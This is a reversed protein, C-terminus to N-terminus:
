VELCRIGARGAVSRLSRDLTLLPSKFRMACELVYADYAYIGYEHALETSGKLNPIAYRIPIGEFIEIGKRAEGLPLRGRKFMASFTNGVEWPVSGPALLNQGQTLKIIPAREPEGLIAALVASTDIIIEM